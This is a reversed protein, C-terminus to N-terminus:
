MKVAYLGDEDSSIGLEETIPQSEYLALLSNDGSDDYNAHSIEIAGSGSYTSGYAITTPRETVPQPSHEEVTPSNSAITNSRVPEENSPVTHQKVSPPSHPVAVDSSDSNSGPQVPPQVPAPQIAISQPMTSPISPNVQAGSTIASNDPMNPAISPQVAVTSTSDKPQIALKTPTQNETALQHTPATIFRAAFILIAAAAAIGISGWVAPRSWVAPRIVNGERVVGPSKPIEQSTAAQAPEPQLDRAPESSAFLADLDAAIDRTPALQPM